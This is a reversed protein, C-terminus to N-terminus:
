LTSSVIDVEGSGHFVLSMLLIIRSKNSFFVSCGVEPDVEELVRCKTDFENKEDRTLLESISGGLFRKYYKLLASQTSSDLYSFFYLM